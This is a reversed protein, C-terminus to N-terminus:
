LSNKKPWPVDSMPVHICVIASPQSTSSRDSLLPKATPNTIASWNTGVSSNPAHPPTIASRNSLRASITTVCDTM